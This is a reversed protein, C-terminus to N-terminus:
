NQKGKSSRGGYNSSEKCCLTCPSLFCFCLPRSGAAVRYTSAGAASRSSCWSRKTRARAQASSPRSREVGCTVCSSRWPPVSGNQRDWFPWPFMVPFLNFHVLKGPNEMPGHNNAKHHHIQNHTFNPNLQSSIPHSMILGTFSRFDM